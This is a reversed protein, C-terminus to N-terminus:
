TRERKFPTLSGDARIEYEEFNIMTLMKECTHCQCKESNCGAIRNIDNIITEAPEVNGNTICREIFTMAEQVHVTNDELIKMLEKNPIAGCLVCLEHIEKKLEEM